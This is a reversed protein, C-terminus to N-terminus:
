GEWGGKLFAGEIAVLVTCHDDYNTYANRVHKNCSDGDRAARLDDKVRSKM